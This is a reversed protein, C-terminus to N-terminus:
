NEQQESQSCRAPRTQRAPVSSEGPSDESKVSSRRAYRAGARRWRFARLSRASGRQARAPQTNLFLPISTAFLKMEFEVQRDDSRQHDEEDGAGPRGRVMKSFRGRRARHCRPAASRAAVIDVFALMIELARALNENGPPYWAFESTANGVCPKIISIRRCVGGVSVGSRIASELQSLCAVPRCEVAARRRRWQHTCVRCAM